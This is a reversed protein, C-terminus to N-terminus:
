DLGRGSAGSLRPPATPHQVHRQRAGGSGHSCAAGEKHVFPEAWDRGPSMGPQQTARKALAVMM